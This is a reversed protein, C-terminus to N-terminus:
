YVEKIIMWGAITIHNTKTDMYLTYLHVPSKLGMMRKGMDPELNVM